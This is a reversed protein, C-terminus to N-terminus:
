EHGLGVAVREGLRGVPLDEGLRQRDHVLRHDLGPADAIQLIEALEGLELRVAPMEGADAYTALDCDAPEADGLGLLDELASARHAGRASDGHAPEGPTEARELRRLRDAARLEPELLHARGIRAGARYR